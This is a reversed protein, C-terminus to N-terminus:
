VRLQRWRCCLESVLMAGFAHNIVDCTAVNNRWTKPFIKNSGSSASSLDFLKLDNKSPTMSSNLCTLDFFPGFVNVDFIGLM